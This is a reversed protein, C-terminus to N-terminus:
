DRSQDLFTRISAFVVDPEEIWPAHGANEVSVLRANPLRAAWDKGGGYPASRDKTGHITLVPAKVKALDAPTLNLRQISPSLHAMWYSMFNRENPQDCRGWPVIRGADAPDTVYIAGMVSWFRRCFVEAEEAPDREKQLKGIKAFVEGLTADMNSLEPPYQTAAHPQVPGIQVVRNVHDGYTVAYLIVLMGVYSHGILDVRDVKCHRRVADLDAVDNMIGGELKARDSVTESRGRNRPDYVVLTRGDALQKFDDIFYMGNPIIVTRPGSGLTRFFLRLGDDTTVYGESPLM